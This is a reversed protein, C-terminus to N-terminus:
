KEAMEKERRKRAHYERSGEWLAKLHDPSRHYGEAKRRAWAEKMKKVRTERGPGEWSAKVGDSIRQRAEASHNSKSM